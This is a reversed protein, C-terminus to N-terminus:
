GSKLLLWLGLSSLFTAIALSFIPHAASLIVGNGLRIKDVDIWPRNGRRFWGLLQVSSGIPVAPRTGLRLCNSLPGLASFFRLKLLGNATKLLLDQGLWNAIGPRGLLTGSLNTPVSEVPLLEPESLWSPWDTSPPQDFSLDPFFRNIRLIIGIGTSLLVCCEFLALDQHMWALFPWDLRDGIAGVGLLVVGIALGIAASFYPTGQSLLRLWDQQRLGKRGQKRSPHQAEFSLEADLKWHQAYAALLALRDGLPPHSDLLSMWARVPNLSDWAYLQGLPYREYLQYRCLDPAVPMLIAASEVLAPTCGQEEIAKALGFSVKGLARILGNPNGTLECTQRDGYYTRVKALWLSPIQLLWFVCYSLTSVVGTALNLPKSQRNGWLALRWYGQHFLQLVFGCVSLIPWHLSKWQAMEYVALAAIEDAELQTLLGESMVLRANRPLWGVSFILPVDTPLQWLKPLPWRRQRCCQSILRVAEASHPRLANLSFSQRDCVLRLWIDWLWPSAIAMMGLAGLLYWTADYLPFPRVWGLLPLGSVFNLYGNLIAIASNLLYRALFYFSVAGAVQAAWLKGTRIRGLSRGKELRGAYRWGVDALVASDTAAPATTDAELQDNLRAYHFISRAATKQGLLENKLPVTKRGAVSSGSSAGAAEAADATTTSVPPISIEPAFALPTTAASPTVASPVVASSPPTLPTFGSLGVSPPQAENDAPLAASVSVMRREIKALTAKSWQQVPLQSSQGIKKCLKEAESWDRQSMYVRVLGMGAKLRYARNRLLPKLAAIAQEYEGAKYATIGAKLLRESDATNNM